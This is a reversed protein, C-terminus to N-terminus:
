EKLRCAVDQIGKTFHINIEFTSSKFNNNYISAYGSILNTLARWLYNFVYWPILKFMQEKGCMDSYTIDPFIICM